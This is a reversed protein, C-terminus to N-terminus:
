HRQFFGTGSFTVVGTKEYRDEVFQRLVLNKRRRPTTLTGNIGENLCLNIGKFPFKQM